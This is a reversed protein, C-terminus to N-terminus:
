EAKHKRYSRGLYSSEARHTFSGSVQHSCSRPEFVLILREGTLWAATPGCTQRRKKQAAPTLKAGRRAQILVRSDFM